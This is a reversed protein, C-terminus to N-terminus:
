IPPTLFHKVGSWVICPLSALQLFLHTMQQLLHSVQAHHHQSVEDINVPPSHFYTLDETYYEITKPRLNKLRCHKYFANQAESYTTRRVEVPNLITTRRM